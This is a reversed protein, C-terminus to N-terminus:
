VCREIPFLIGIALRYAAQVIWAKKESTMVEVCWHSIARHVSFSKLSLESNYKVKVLCVDALYDLALRFAIRDGLTKKLANTDGDIPANKQTEGFHFNEIFSIPIQWPGLIAIFTLLIAAEPKETRIFRYLMSFVATIPREKDYSLYGRPPYQDM